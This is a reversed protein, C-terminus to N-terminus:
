IMKLVLKNMEKGRYGLVGGRTFPKKIGMREFGGVPPHLKFYKKLGEIDKLSSKGSMLNESFEKISLKTKEKTYDETLQNNGPLRGRKSLLESITSQDVEGFTCYDKVKDIMGKNSPTNSLLILRHKRHLKMLDLTTKIQPKIGVEGRVRLVAIIGSM